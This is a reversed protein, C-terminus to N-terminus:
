DKVLAFRKAHDFDNQRHLQRDAARILDDLCPFLKNVCINDKFHRWFREIPNLELSCYKPLWFILLRQEFLSLAALSAVPTILHM